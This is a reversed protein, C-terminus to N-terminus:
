AQILMDTPGAGPVNSDNAVTLRGYVCYDKKLIYAMPLFYGELFVM